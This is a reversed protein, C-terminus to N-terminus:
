RVIVCVYMSIVQENSASRGKDNRWHTLPQNTAHHNTPRPATTPATGPAAGQRQRRRRASDGRAARASDAAAASLSPSAIM